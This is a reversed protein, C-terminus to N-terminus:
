PASGIFNQGSVNAGNVTVSKSPPTFALGGKSPTVTHSGNPVNNLTYYGASNSTTSQGSDATVLVGAISIGNSTSIRGSISYGTAGIFNQAAVNAGNVTVIRSGPIFTYGSLGPTITYSGDPLNSFTYYGASNTVVAPRGTAAVTVGALAMGTNTAVRGSISYPGQAIATFNQNAASASNVVATRTAPTFAYGSLSPTVTYSGNAIGSFLYYGASNTFAPTASGSRVVQVNALPAGNSTTIRGQIYPLMGNYEYAGIDSVGSRVYGRQDAPPALSDDGANIAPSGAVLAITQTPGGNNRLGNPDLGPNAVNLQDSGATFYGGGDDTLLNHGNDVVTSGGGAMVSFNDGSGAALITNAITLTAAGNQGDSYLSSGNMGASNNSLTCNTITVSGNGGGEASNAVDVGNSPTSNNSFTCNTLILSASGHYAHSLIGGGSNVSASNGSLTCNVLTVNTTGNTDGYNFIAGGSNASNDSLTCNSLTLNASGSYGDNFFAGGSDSVANNSFSCNALIVSANGGTEGNNFIGGGLFASNDSLATNTLTVSASGSQGNNYLTGFEDASNNSLTCGTMVLTAHDNYVASGFLTNGQSLILNTLTLQAGSAAYILRFKPASTDRTITAGNGNITVAHGNDGTIQPLGNYGRPDTSAVDNDVTTLTYTSGSALNIIDDQDNGNATNIATKLGAVDGEVVNFTAAHAPRSMASLLTLLVACAISRVLSGYIENTTVIQMM